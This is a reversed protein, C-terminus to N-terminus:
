LRLLDYCLGSHRLESEYLRRIRGHFDYRPDCKLTLRNSHLDLLLDPSLMRLIRITEELGTFNKTCLWPVYAREM